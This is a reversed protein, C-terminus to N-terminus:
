LKGKGIAALHKIDAGAPNQFINLGFERTVSILHDFIDAQIEEYDVWATTTAFVYIEIPLGNPGPPLQRVLFTLGKHIDERNKLYEKMYARFVGLNTMRRGNVVVSGDVDLKKNYEEIEKEKKEIYGSLIKIKKLKGMMEKDIFKVSDMDLFISRKIRRGGMEIMGRWNKFANQILAITPIVTITKDFNRIKITHLSIDMIDGDVGLKPVEIWDGVKVLDYSAIQISAVFALITDKFILLLVASLAGLGAFLSWLNQGTLIGFIMLVGFAIVIIKVVQVYSKIPRHKFKEFLLIIETFADLLANIVLIIMLAMLAGLIHDIIIEFDKPFLHFQQIILLPVIYSLRRLIKENLLIDDFKSKTKKVFKSLYVILIKKTIFYGVFALVLVGLFEVNDALFPAPKLWEQIKELL